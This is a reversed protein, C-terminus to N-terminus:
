GLGRRRHSCHHSSGLHQIGARTRIRGSPRSVAGHARPDLRSARCLHCLRRVLARGHRARRAFRRRLLPASAAGPPPSYGFGRRQGSLVARLFRVAAREVLHTADIRSVGRRASLARRETFDGDGQQEDDTKGTIIHVALRGGTLHDFTAIKRAMLTPAVFGPRHAILYGLRETRAAAHLAVLFSEASSSSYGVLVLDFGSAEHARAAEAVYNPSLGGEIVHLTAASTPPTVGIMGIVRMPM